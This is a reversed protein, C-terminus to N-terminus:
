LIMAQHDKFGEFDKNAKIAIISNSSPLNYIKLNEMIGNIPQIGTKFSGVRVDWTISPLLDLAETSSATQIGDIYIALTKSGDFNASRSIVYIFHKWTGATWDSTLDRCSTNIGERNIYIGFAPNLNFVLRLEDISTGTRLINISEHTGGDSPVGNTINYDTNLQFEFIVENMDLPVATHQIFENDADIRAANGYLGSVFTAGNNAGNIGIESILSANEYRNWLICARKLPTKLGM